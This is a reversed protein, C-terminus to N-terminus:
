IYYAGLIRRSSRYYLGVAVGVLMGGLHAGHAISSPLLLGFLDILAWLVAAFILPVPFFGYVLVRLLPALIALAGIVGYIAGSAGLAPAGKTGVTLFYGLNGVVGSVLFLVLFDRSGIRMELYRGFIYLAFMNFLLHTIDAHFFISTVFVWPMQLAWMPIFIFYVWEDTVAEVLFALICLGIL